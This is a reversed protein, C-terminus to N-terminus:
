KPAQDDKIKQAALRAQQDAERAIKRVVIRRAKRPIWYERLREYSEERLMARRQQRTMRMLPSQLRPLEEAETM